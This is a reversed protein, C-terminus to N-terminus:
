STYKNFPVILTFNSSFFNYCYHFLKNVGISIYEM